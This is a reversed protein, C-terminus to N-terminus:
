LAPAILTVNLPVAAITVTSEAHSIVMVTGFPAVVSVTSTVVGPAVSRLLLLNLTLGYNEIGSAISPKPSRSVSSMVLRAGFPLLMVNLSRPTAAEAGHVARDLDVLPTQIVIDALMVDQSAPETEIYRDEIGACPPPPARMRSRM